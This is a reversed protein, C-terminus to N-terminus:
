LVEGPVEQGTTRLRGEKAKLLEEIRRLIVLAEKNGAAELREVM